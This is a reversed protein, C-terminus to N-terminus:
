DIIQARKLLQGTEESLTWRHVHNGTREVLNLMWLNELMETATSTPLKAADGVEKSTPDDGGYWTTLEKVLTLRRTPITDTAIRKLYGYEEDTVTTRNHVCALAISLKTMQKVLRTGIECEPTYVVIHKRDRVVPSRMKATLNALARIQAAIEPPMTTQGRAHERHHKLCDTTAQQLEARMQEEQGALDEAKAIAHSESTRIRFKLFREGLLQHVVQYMDIVPTVGALLGFKAECSKKKVGSGFYKEMYGDYAERLQAFIENRDRDPMTLISTFDKIILLKGDLKPMLDINGKAQQLGSILSHPTLTSVTYVKEDRLSRLIETKSGGPPSILFLWLPDGPLDISLAVAMVTPLFLDDKIYLWKSFTTKLKDLTGTTARVLGFERLAAETTAM